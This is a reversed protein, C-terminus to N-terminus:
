DSMLKAGYTGFCLKTYNRDFKSPRCRRGEGQMVKVAYHHNSKADFYGGGVGKGGDALNLLTGRGTIIRGHVAIMQMEKAFAEDENLGDSVISVKFRKGKIAHMLLGQYMPSYNKLSDGNISKKLVKTLTDFHSWARDNIGKGIYLASKGASIQYVYYGAPLTKPQEPLSARFAKLVPSSAARSAPINHALKLQSPESM